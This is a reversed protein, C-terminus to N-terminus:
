DNFRQIAFKRFIMFCVLFMLKDTKSIFCLYYLLKAIFMCKKRYDKTIEYETVRANKTKYTAQIWDNTDM